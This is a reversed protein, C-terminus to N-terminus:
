QKTQQFKDRHLGSERRRTPPHCSWISRPETARSANPAQTSVRAAEYAEINKRIGAIVTEDPMFDAAEVAVGALRSLNM